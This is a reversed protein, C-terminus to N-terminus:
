SSKDINFITSFDKDFGYSLVENAQFTLSFDMTTTILNNIYDYIYIKQVFYLYYLKRNTNILTLLPETDDTHSNITTPIVSMETQSNVFSKFIFILILNYSIFFLKSIPKM